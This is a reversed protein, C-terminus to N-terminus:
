AQANHKSPAVPRELQKIHEVYASARQHLDNPYAYGPHTDPVILIVDLRILRRRLRRPTKM